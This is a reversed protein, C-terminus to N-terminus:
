KETKDCYCIGLGVTSMYVRGYVNLDGCIWDGNGLGGFRHADDNCREWTAGNDETMYIGVTDSDATTGYIYIVYPDGENKAKGLSVANCIKAGEVKTFTTGYDTTVYLGGGAPLYFCGETVPDVCLRDEMLFLDTGIKEFSKGGDTSRYLKDNGYAYVYDPNISDGIIYYNQGMLGECQTWTEGFDETYFAYYANEPSWILRSGDANFAIKGNYYIKGKEPSKKITSWTKGGDTTYSIAMGSESGGVKAWYDRNQPAITVSTTSGIEGGHRVANTYIDEHVFGDYDLAASVLPFDELTIMDMPVTEEIGQSNFYLEPSDDWINDCAFIGNGSTVMIEDTDFPNLALSSCWHFAYGDIWSMGNNSMTANQIINKWSDGGDESVYIVDGFSGNPQQLWTCATTLVLRDENEPDIAIDSFPTTAPAINEATGEDVDYKYVSGNSMGWPGETDGYTVYLDGDSDLKIRQPMANNANPLLSWTSGADESVYINESKASVAAYIRQTVGDKESSPDLVIINIGNKNSTTTVPFSTVPDWTYGGDTSKIMGGSNGGAYIVDPNNPDVALREGNGRGMGNGHVKILDSVDVVNFSEGYNDSVLICTKGGSFYETGALLYVKAANTPDVAVASIGMLGVDEESVWYNLSKWKKASDDWRYAGGVDTRAYYVGEECTSFVGTVFGGGGVAVQGYTWGNDVTEVIIDTGTQDSNQTATNPDTASSSNGGCGALLSFCMAITTIGATVKTKKNTM